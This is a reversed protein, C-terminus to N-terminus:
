KHGAVHITENQWLTADIRKLEAEVDKGEYFSFWGQLRHTEGPKCDPFQGDSHMCPCPANFWTSQCPKWATIFFTAGFEYKLLVPRVVAFQSKVSDDFTLVILKDPIPELALASSVTLCVILAFFLLRM